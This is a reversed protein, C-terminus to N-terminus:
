LNSIMKKFGNFIASELDMSIGKLTRLNPNSSLLELAFGSFTADGKTFHLMIPGLHVPHNGNSANLIRKNRYTIDTIWLICLNFTTDVALVVPEVAQCCFDKIDM